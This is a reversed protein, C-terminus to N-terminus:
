SGNTAPAPVAGTRIADLVRVLRVIPEVDHVRVISAGGAVSAAVAAATGELRRDADLNLIGGIFSKRSPGVLVPHGLAAIAGINNLIALNHALSKGFGIGPDLIVTRVGGAAARGAADRLFEAVEAVVDGYSPSDQMTEPTGRMHMLIVPVQKEAALATMSTDFRLATVDNILSAGADLAARAVDAKCTDISVPVDTAKSLAAVVPLIRDMEERASVRASGPRTSEGGVDLFDAGESVLRLGHEVAAAPDLYRGGDSFSDPTVNLIGM